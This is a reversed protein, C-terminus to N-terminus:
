FSLGLLRPRDGPGKAKRKLLRVVFEYGEDERRTRRVSKAYQCVRNLGGQGLFASAFVDSSSSSCLEWNGVQMWKVTSLSELLVIKAIYSKWSELQMSVYVVNSTVGDALEDKTRDGNGGADTRARAGENM